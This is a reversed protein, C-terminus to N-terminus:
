FFFNTQLTIRRLASATTYAGGDIQISKGFDSSSLVGVPPALDENDFLDQVQLGFAINYRRGSPAAMGPGGGLHHGHHGHDGFPGEGNDVSGPQLRPGFGFTKTLRVNFTFESPGSCPNIPALPAGPVVGEQAFTGCGPISKITTGNPAVGTVLDPRYNFFTDNLNDFGTTINYPQGTQFIMFPSFEFALPLEISGAMFLRDRVDFTTRGYDAHIDGPVSIDQGGGSTDGKAFNVADYGFMTIGMPMQLHGHFILENQHFAGETFFQYNATSLSPDAFNYGINQTALQHLGLAHLYNISVTGYRGVQQDVGASAEVIYSSRLNPAASYVTQATTTAGCAAIFDTASPNCATSPSNETYVTENKGNEQELILISPQKFRTYFYGFGVRVVTKPAGHKAFLGYDAELRPAIDHHDSLHNQTEYRFGYTVTLNKQPTWQNELFMGLDAYWDGIKHNNITTFTFLSPQGALYDAFDAYTFSGNTNNETNEAEREARLRGGFRIFNHGRQYSNYSQFEFYDQHDSLSQAGYGGSTFLGEVNITPLTSVPTTSIHQRQYEFRTQSVVHPNWVETDSLQLVNFLTNTNYGTQPLDLSGIGDNSATNRIYQYRATLVNNNGLSFDVRPNIDMRTQPFYTSIQYGTQVCTTDGPQCLTTSGPAPAAIQANTYEDQQIQRYTAGFNYSSKQTIPGTLNGFSFITHYPPQYGPELPDLTDFQSAQGDVQVNGHLQQTGPKTLIEIRGYGLQDYEVSYPDRNVFIELISSKPPLQGGTFGDVYIQGGNPGASPGALAMLESQLENPDDSLSNLANGTIALASQNSEPSVSLQMGNDAHVNVVQSQVGVQLKANLTTSGASVNVAAVSYPAFGPMSVQVAYTGPRVAMQYTGDSGSRVSIAPGHAPQLTVTAGPILAGDPDTVVGHVKAGASASPKQVMTQSHAQAPTLGVRWCFALGLSCTLVFASIREFKM